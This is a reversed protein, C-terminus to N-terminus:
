NQLTQLFADTKYWQKTYIITHLDTQGPRIDAHFNPDPFHHTSISKQCRPSIIFPKNETKHDSTMCPNSHNGISSLKVFFNIAM